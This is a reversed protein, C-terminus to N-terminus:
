QVRALRSEDVVLVGVIDGREAAELVALMGPLDDLTEGSRGVDEFLVWDWARQDAYDTLKTRQDDLSFGVEAQHRTSV